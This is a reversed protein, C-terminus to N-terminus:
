SIDKEITNVTGDVNYDITTTETQGAFVKVVTVLRGEEAGTTGYSNTVTGNFAESSDTTGGFTITSIQGSGTYAYTCDIEISKDIYDLTDNLDVAYLVDGDSWETDNLNITM